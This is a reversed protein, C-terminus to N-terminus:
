VLTKKTQYPCLRTRGEENVSGGNYDESLAGSQEGASGRWDETESLILMYSALLHCVFGEGETLSDFDDM